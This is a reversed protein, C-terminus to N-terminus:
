GSRPASSTSLMFRRYQMQGVGAVFPAFTRVIPVFRAMIITKNGYKEYFLQTKVLHKKNLAM